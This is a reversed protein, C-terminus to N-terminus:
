FGPGGDKIANFTIQYEYVDDKTTADAEDVWIYLKFRQSTNKNIEYTYLIDNTIEDLNGEKIEKDDLVLLYKLNARDITSNVEKIIIQYLGKRNGNNEITFMYPWTKLAEEKNSKLVNPIIYTETDDFIVKLEVEGYYKYLKDIYYSGMYAIGAIILSMFIILIVKGIKNKKM